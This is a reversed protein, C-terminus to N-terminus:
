KVFFVVSFDFGTIFLRAARHLLTCLILELDYGLMASIGVFM